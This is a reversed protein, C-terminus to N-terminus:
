ELRFAAAKEIVDVVTQPAAQMVIHGTPSTQSKIAGDGALSVMMQQAEFPLANDKECMLYITPIDRYPEYTVANYVGASGQDVLEAM